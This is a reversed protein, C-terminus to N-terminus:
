SVVVGGSTGKLIGYLSATSNQTFNTNGQIQISTIPDNNAWLGAWIQPYSEASNQEMVADISISKSAAQRYNPIYIQSNNFTNATSNAGNTIPGLMDSRSGSSSFTGQGLGGNGFLYRFSYGTTNNNFTFTTYQTVDATTSRTSLLIVLDDFNQPIGLFNISSATASDVNVRQILQM